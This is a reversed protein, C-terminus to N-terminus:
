TSLLFGTLVIFKGLNYNYKIIFFINKNNKYIQINNFAM